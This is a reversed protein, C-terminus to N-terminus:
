PTNKTLKFDSKNKTETVATCHLLMFQGWLHRYMIGVPVRCLSSMMVVNRRWKLIMIVSNNRRTDM